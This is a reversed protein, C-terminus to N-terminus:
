QVAQTLSFIPSLIAIAFFAVAGGIFVILIPGLLTTIQKLTHNIERQYHAGVKLSIDGLSASQEAIALMNVVTEPFLFPAAALSQSLPKGTQIHALADYTKVRYVENGMSAAVYELAKNIPLGSEILLGLSDVFRLVLIKRILNGILPIRLKNFDWSFHGEDSNVYMHFSIIALIALIILAWWYNSMWLSMGLLIRTTLPLALSSEAFLSQMRPVVFVMMVGIGIVLAVLVTIPYVLAGAVRSHLTATRELNGAIKFLVHELNGVAEASRIIGRESESFVEPFRELALSLPRGHELEYSITAIIRKLRPHETKVHLIQLCKNIPIGAHVMTALLEFFYGKERAPVSARDIFFDKIRTLLPRGTRQTVGYIFEDQTAEQQVKVLLSDLAEIRKNTNEEM